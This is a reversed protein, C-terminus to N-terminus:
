KSNMAVSRDLLDALMSLAAQERGSLEKQDAQTRDAYIVGISKEDFGVPIVAIPWGDEFYPDGQFITRSEKVAKADPAYAGADRGLSRKFQGPAFDPINGLAMRGVLETKGKNMLMLIVRDFLMGWALTEMVSTIVSSTPERGEVAERIEEVYQAFQDVGDDAVSASVVTPVRVNGDSDTFTRIYSPLEPLPLELSVCQEKFAESLKGIAEPLVKEDLGFRKHLKDLTQELQAKGHNHSLVASIEHAAYIAKSLEIGSQAKKEDSFSEAESLVNKYFDPLRLEDIVELSLGTPTLGTIELISQSLPQDKTKSRKVASDYVKPFYFALLLVGLEYFTGALYGTEDEKKKSKKASMESTLTSALLSTTVTQQLCSAFAGGDRARPAFKQLLVLGSCLEALPRMGIQVVAQSITMIPKARKYFSSNVLHLVRTGLSPEQLILETVKNATTDPQSVLKKLESVVRASAPFDGDRRLSRRLREVFDKGALSGTENM